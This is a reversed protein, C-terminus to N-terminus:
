QLSVPKLFVDERPIEIDVRAGTRPNTWSHHERYRNRVQRMPTSGNRYVVQGEEESSILERTTELPQFDGTAGSGAPLADAVPVTFVPASSSEADALPASTEDREGTSDRGESLGPKENTKENPKKSPREAQASMGPTERKEPAPKAPFLAIAALASAAGAIAWGLNHFCRALWPERAQEFRISVSERDKKAPSPEPQSLGAAIREEISAPAASPRLARLSSEFQSENM